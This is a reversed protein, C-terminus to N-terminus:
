QMHPGAVVREFWSILPHDPLYLLIGTAAITLGVMIVALPVSIRAVLTGLMAGGFLCGIAILRRWAARSSGGFLPNDYALGHLLGTAAPITLDAVQAYRTASTQLGMSFALTVLTAYYSIAMHMAWIIAAMIVLVGVGLLIDAITRRRSQQRRVLVGGLMAGGSYSTIAVLGPLLLSHASFLHIGALILTATMYGTFVKLHVLTIADLAGMATTVMMIAAIIRQDQRESPM